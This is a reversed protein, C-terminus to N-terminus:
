LLQKAGSIEWCLRNEKASKYDRLMAEIHPHSGALKEAAELTAAGVTTESTAKDLDM